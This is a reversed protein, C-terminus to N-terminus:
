FSPVPIRDDWPSVIALDKGPPSHVLQFSIWDNAKVNQTLPLQAKGDDKTLKSAGNRIGIEVLRVPRQHADEVRVIVYGSDALCPVAALGIAFALQLAGLKRFRM